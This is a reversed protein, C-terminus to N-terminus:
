LNLNKPQKLPVQNQSHFLGISNGYYVGYNDSTINNAYATLTYADYFRDGSNMFIVYDGGTAKIGKNFAHYIGNDKESVSYDIHNQYQTIIEASGDTSGGDVVIYEFNKYDQGIVSKVTNDLGQVNNYNITIISFKVSM